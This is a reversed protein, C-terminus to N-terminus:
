GAGRSSPSAQVRASRSITLGLVGALAMLTGGLGTLVLLGGTFGDTIDAMLGMMLPGLVGGVEGATFYLGGAAGMNRSGVQPSDMLTLVLTASTLRSAGVMFLGLFMAAGDTLGILLPAISVPILVLLLTKIRRHPPTLRPVTLVTLVGMATPVAAWFGANRASLGSDRLVEPMWNQIAHNFLFACLAMVLILRVFPIRLLSPFVRWGSAEGPAAHSEVEGRPERAILLWAMLALLAICAFIGLTLRWNEDTLPMFISNATTVAIISGLAPATVYIGLATGRDQQSFWQSIVKPAGISILPGGIGFVGVALLLTTFDVAVARLAGSLAIIGIGAALTRRTGFRDLMAGGPIAAAIYVLPWAGLIGGMVARSIGLEERIPTILPAVSAVVLGFSFYALWLGGLIAWRYRSESAAPLPGIATASTM